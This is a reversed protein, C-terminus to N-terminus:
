KKEKKSLELIAIDYCEKTEINYEEFKKKYVIKGKVAIELLWKGHNGFERYRRSKIRAQSVNFIKALEKKHNEM